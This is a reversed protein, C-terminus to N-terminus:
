RRSKYNYKSVLDSVVYGYRVIEDLLGDIVRRKEVLQPATPGLSEFIAKYEILLAELQTRYWKESKRGFIRDFLGM